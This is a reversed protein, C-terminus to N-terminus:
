KLLIYKIWFNQLYYFLYSLFRFTKSNANKNLLWFDFIYLEWDSIFINHFTLPNSIIDTWLIDLFFWEKEWLEDNIKLLLIVKNKIKNNILDKRVLATWKIKDQKIIYWFKEDNIIKTNAINFDKSFYLLLLSYSKNIFEFANIRKYFLFKWSFNPCKYFYNNYEIVINEAFMRKSQNKLLLEKVKQLEEM